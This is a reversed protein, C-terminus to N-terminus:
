SFLKYLLSYNVKKNIQSNTDKKIINIFDNILLNNTYNTFLNNKYQIIKNIQKIKKIKLFDQNNLLDLLIYLISEIDDYRIGRKSLNINRSSYHDNGYRNSLKSNSYFQSDNNIYKICSDFNYLKVIYKDNELKFRLNLPNLNIYLYKKSHIYEIVQILQYGINKIQSETLIQNKLEEYSFPLYEIKLMVNNNKNVTYDYLKIINKNDKFIKKLLLYEYHLINKSSTIDLYKIIYKNNSYININSYTDLLKYSKLLEIPAEIINPNNICKKICKNFHRTCYNITKHNKHDEFIQTAKHKCNINNKTIYECEM